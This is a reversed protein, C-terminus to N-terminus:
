NLRNEHLRRLLPVLTARSVDGVTTGTKQASLHFYLGRWYSMASPDRQHCYLNDQLDCIADNCSQEPRLYLHFIADDSDKAYSRAGSDEADSRQAIRAFDEVADNLRRFDEDAAEEPEEETMEDLAELLARRRSPSHSRGSDKAVSQAAQRFPDSEKAGETSRIRTGRWDVQRGSATANRDMAVLSETTSINGSPKQFDSLRM